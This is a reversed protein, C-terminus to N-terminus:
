MNVCCGTMEMSTKKKLLHCLVAKIFAMITTALQTYTDASDLHCFFFFVKKIQFCLYFFNAWCFMCCLRTLLSQMQGWVIVSYASVRYRHMEWPQYNYAKLPYLITVEILFDCATFQLGGGGGWWHMEREDRSCCIISMVVTISVYKRLFCCCLLYSTCHSPFFTYLIYTHFRKSLQPLHFPSVNNLECVLYLKGLLTSVSLIKQTVFDKHLHHM